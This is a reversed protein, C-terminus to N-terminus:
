KKKTVAPKISKETAKPSEEPEEEESMEEEPESIKEKQRNGVMSPLTKSFSDQMMSMEKKISELNGGYAGIKELIASQLKDMTAEIRKLRDNMQEIRSQTMSKFEDFSEIKKRSDNIKESFVQEAIDVITDTNIQQQQYQGNDYGQPYGQQQQYYEQTQPAYGQQQQEQGYGQDQGQNQDYGQQQGYDQPAYAEQQNQYGQPSPPLPMDEGSVDAVANKIQAHNM